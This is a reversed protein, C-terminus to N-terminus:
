KLIVTKSESLFAHQIVIIEHKLNIRVLCMIFLAASMRQSNTGM